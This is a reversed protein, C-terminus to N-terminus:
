NRSSRRKVGERKSGGGTAARYLEVVESRWDSASCAAWPKLNSAVGWPLCRLRFHQIHITQIQGDEGGGGVSMPSLLASHTHDTDAWRRAGELCKTARQGRQFACSIRHGIATVFEMSQDARLPLRDLVYGNDQVCQVFYSHAMGRPPNKPDVRTPVRLLDIRSDGGFNPARQDASRFKRGLDPDQHFNAGSAGIAVLFGTKVSRLRDTKWGVMEGAACTWCSPRARM